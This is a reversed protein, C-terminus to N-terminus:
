LMHAKPPCLYVTLLLGNYSGEFTYLTVTLTVLPVCVSAAM